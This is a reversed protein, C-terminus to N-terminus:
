LAIITTFYSAPFNLPVAQQFIGYVTSGSGSMSAYLAGMAYLQQKIAAIEPHLAFVSVEFQNQIVQSWRHVPLQWSSLLSHAPAAAVMGAFAAATSVHIAPNVVVLHYGKLSLAIPTLDEGRGQGFSPTNEIFFPCDSGLQLAYAMLRPKSIGLNYLNNLLLLMHAGNSSGGGLGAGMPIHKHLHLKVAPLVDGFDAKLLNYAKVCLNQQWTGPISYGSASCEVSSTQGAAGTIVELADTLPIPYFITEINHYGDPRKGVVHLGINIKCNPFVIM